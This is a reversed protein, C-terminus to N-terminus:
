GQPGPACGEVSEALHEAFCGDLLPLRVEDLVGDGTLHHPVVLRPIVVPVVLPEPAQRGESLGDLAVLLLAGQHRQVGVRDATIVGGLHPLGVTSLPSHYPGVPLVHLAVLDPVHAVIHSLIPLPHGIGHPADHNLGAGIANAQVLVAMPAPGAEALLMLVGEGLRPHALPALTDGLGGLEHPLGHILDSRTRDQGRLMRGVVVQHGEHLATDGVIEGNLGGRQARQLAIQLPEVERLALGVLQVVAAGIQLALLLDPVGYLGEAAVVRGQHVGQQPLILIDILAPVTLWQDRRQRPPHIDVAEPATPLGHQM